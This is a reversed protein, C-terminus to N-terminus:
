TAPADSAIADIARGWGGPVSPEPSSAISATASRRPRKRRSRPERTPAASTEAASSIPVTSTDRAIWKVLSRV